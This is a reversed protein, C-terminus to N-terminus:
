FALKIKENKILDELAVMKLGFNDISKVLGELMSANLELGKIVQSSLKHKLEQLEEPKMDELDGVRKELAKRM